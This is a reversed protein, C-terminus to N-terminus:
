VQPADEWRGGADAYEQTGKQIVDDGEAIDRAPIDDLDKIREYIPAFDNNVTDNLLQEFSDIVFYTQQFDDYRYQARMIREIDFGIRNPSRAELSFVSESYSSVIGAGYIKLADDQKILGFEVTYWYLRTINELTGYKLARLGGRGYAAMYDAFTSLGLLPSHGFVDHFIDPEQLYDIEHPKRIFRGVPFQRNALHTFFPEDPILGPVTVLKWGTMAELKPNLERFDPIITNDLGLADLGDYFEKVARNGLMETQRNYLKRWMAHEEDTYEDWCQDITYDDRVQGAEVQRQVIPDTTPVRLEVM